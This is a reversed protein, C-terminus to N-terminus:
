AQTPGMAGFWSKAVLNPGVLMTKKAVARIYKKFLPKTLQWILRQGLFALPPILGFSKAGTPTQRAHSNGSLSFALTNPVKPNNKLSHVNAKYSPDM